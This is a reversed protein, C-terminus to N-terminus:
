PSRLPMVEVNNIIVSFARIYQELAIMRAHSLQHLCCWLWQMQGGIWLKESAAHYQHHDHKYNHGLYIQVKRLHAGYGGSDIKEWNELRYQYVTLVGCCKEENCQGNCQDGSKHSM